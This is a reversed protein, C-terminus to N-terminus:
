EGLVLREGSILHSGSTGAQGGPARREILATSLGESGGYVAAALGAPGAGIIAVDYMTKSAKSQMCTKEGVAALDPNRLISGDEFFVVPLDKTEIANLSILENATADSEIDM